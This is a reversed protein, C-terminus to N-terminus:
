QPSDNFSGNALAACDDFLESTKRQLRPPAGAADEVLAECHEFLESTKRQLRPPADDEDEGRGAGRQQDDAVVLAVMSPDVAAGPAAANETIKNGSKRREARPEAPKTLEVTAPAAPKQRTSPSSRPRERHTFSFRRRSLQFHMSLSARFDAFGSFQTLFALKIMKLVISFMSLTVSSIVLLNM